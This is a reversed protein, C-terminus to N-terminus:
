HANDDDEKKPMVVRVKGTVTLGSPGKTETFTIANNRLLALGIRSAMDNKISTLVDADYDWVPAEPPVTCTQGVTVIDPREVALPPADFRITMPWPDGRLVRYANLIRQGFPERKKEAM